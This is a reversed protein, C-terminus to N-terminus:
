LENGMFMIHAGYTHDPTLADGQYKVNRTLLGVECRMPFARGGYTETESYHAHELAKNLTLTKADAAVATIIRVEAQNMDYDSSAIVIEEGM